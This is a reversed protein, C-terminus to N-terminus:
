GLKLEEGVGLIGVNVGLWVTAGRKLMLEVSNTAGVGVSRVGVGM